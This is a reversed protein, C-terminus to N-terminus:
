LVLFLAVRVIDTEARGQSRRSQGAFLGQVSEGVLWALWTKVHPVYAVDIAPSYTGGVRVLM